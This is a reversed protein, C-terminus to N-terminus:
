YPRTPESIHILSLGQDNNELATKWLIQAGWSFDGRAQNGGYTIGTELQWADFGTQMAYPLVANAMMATNDRESSNGTPLTFTVNAHLRQHRSNLVSGPWPLKILAGLKIDGLGSSDTSFSDGGNASMSMPASTMADATKPESGMSMGTMALAMKNRMFPVM